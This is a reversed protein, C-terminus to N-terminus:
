NRRQRYHDMAVPISLGAVAAQNFSLLVAAWFNNGSTKNGKTWNATTDSADFDDQINIPMLTSSHEEEARQVYNGDPTIVEDEYGGHGYIGVLLNGANTPTVTASAATSDGTAATGAKDFTSLGGYEICCATPYVSISAGFTFTVVLGAKTNVVPATAVFLKANDSDGNAFVECRETYTNSGGTANDAAAVNEVSTSYTCCGAVIFNGATPTGTFTCTISTVLSTSEGLPTVEVCTAM